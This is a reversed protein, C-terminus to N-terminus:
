TARARERQPRLAITKENAAGGELEASLGGTGLGKRELEGLRSTKVRHLVQEREAEYRACMVKRQLDEVEKKM